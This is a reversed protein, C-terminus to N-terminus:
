VKEGEEKAKERGEGV